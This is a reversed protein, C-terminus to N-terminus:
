FLVAAKAIYHCLDHTPNYGEIADVVVYEVRSQALDQALERVLDSFASIDRALIAAYVARDTWRGYISGLHAGAHHLLSTTSELRSGATGGSGDTLVFVVPRALELWHYIRVAHGPHGIVLAAHHDITGPM